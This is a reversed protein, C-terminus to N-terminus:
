VLAYRPYISTYALKGGIRESKMLDIKHVTEGFPKIQRSILNSMVKRGLTIHPTYKRKDCRLGKACLGATLDKQLNILDKSGHVGAWWLAGDVRKFCGFQEVSLDFPRFVVADMVSKVAATQKEDCEGLFVLTLHLNDRLTFNGSRSNARLEDQLTLLGSQTENNLNIAIFLRVNSAM